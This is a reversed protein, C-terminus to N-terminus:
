AEVPQAKAELKALLERAACRECPPEDLAECAWECPLGAIHKVFAYMDPAMAILRANAKREEDSDVGMCDLSCINPATGDSQTYRVYTRHKSLHWPGPTPNFTIRGVTSM